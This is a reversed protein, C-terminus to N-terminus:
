AKQSPNLRLTQPPVALVQSWNLRLGERPAAGATVQVPSVAVLEVRWRTGQVGAAWGQRSFNVSGTLAQGWGTVERSLAVQALKTGESVPFLQFYEVQAVTLKSVVESNLHSSNVPKSHGRSSVTSRKKGSVHFNYKLLQSKCHQPQKQLIWFVM